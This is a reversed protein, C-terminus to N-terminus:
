LQKEDPLENLLSWYIGLNTVVEQFELHAVPKTVFSNVSLEFCKKIDPNEKSSTLIVIPFVPYDKKRIIELTEIGTIQPMQLDLIVVAIESIDKTDLYELLEVGSKLWIIDIINPIKKLTRITMIADFEEDEVLIIKKRKAM